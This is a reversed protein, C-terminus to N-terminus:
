TQIWRRRVDVLSTFSQHCANTLSLWRFDIGTVDDFHAQNRDQRDETGSIFLVPAHVNQYGTDGFFAKRDTGAMPIAVTIRPDDLANSSLHRM